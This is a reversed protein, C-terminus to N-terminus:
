FMVGRGLAMGEGSVMPLCFEFCFDELRLFGERLFRFVRIAPMTMIEKSTLIM